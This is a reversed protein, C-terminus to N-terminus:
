SEKRLQGGVDIRAAPKGNLYLLLEKPSWTVALMLGKENAPVTPENFTFIRGLPGSVTISIRRDATKYAILSLEKSNIPDFDYHKENTSWDGDPHRLWGTITGEKLHDPIPDASTRGLFLKDQPPGHHNYIWLRAVSRWLCTVSPSAFHIEV